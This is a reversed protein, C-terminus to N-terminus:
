GAQSARLRWIIAVGILGLAAMIGAFPIGWAPVAAAQLERYGARVDFNGWPGTRSLVFVLVRAAHLITAAAGLRLPLRTHQATPARVWRIAAVITGADVLFELVLLTAVWAVMWTLAGAAFMAITRYLLIAAGLILLGAYLRRRTSAKPEPAADDILDRWRQQRHRYFVWAFARVLPTLAGAELEVRDTMRSGGPVADITIRHNWTSAMRGREESELLGEDADITVLEIEHSGLPVLGFLSLQFRHSVGVAWRTVPEGVPRFRLWPAAVHALTGVELLRPFISEPPADLHTSAEVVSAMM